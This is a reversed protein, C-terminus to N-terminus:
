EGKRHLGKILEVAESSSIEGDLDDKNENMFKISENNFLAM